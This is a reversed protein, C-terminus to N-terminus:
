LRAILADRYEALAARDVATLVGKPADIRLLGNITALKVGRRELDDIVAVATM